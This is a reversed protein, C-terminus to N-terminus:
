QVRFSVVQGWGGEGGQLARTECQFYYTTAAMLGSVSTKSVLTRPLSTWTKPDLSCRWEYAAKKGASKASLKVSGTISGQNPGLAPKDHLTVKRIAMGATVIISESGPSM